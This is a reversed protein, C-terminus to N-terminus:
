QTSPFIITIEAGGDKNNQILLEGNNLVTFEKCLVLGLGTGQEQNTGPKSILFEDRKIKELDSSSFGSGSDKIIIKVQGEEKQATICIEGGEPTFKIANRILNRIIFELQSKDALLFVPMINKIFNISKQNLLPQKLEHIHDIFQPVNIIEPITVPKHMQMKAWTLLNKVFGTTKDVQKKLEAGLAKLEEEPIVGINNILVNSFSGISNLPAMFDHSVISFFKDKTRNLKDLESNKNLILKEKELLLSNSKKVKSVYDFTIILSVCLMCAFVILIIIFKREQAIQKKQVTLVNFLDKNSEELRVINQTATILGLREKNQYNKIQEKLMKYDKLIEKGKSSLENYLLDQLLRDYAVDIYSYMKHEKIYSIVDFLVQEEESDKGKSHLIDAKGLMSEITAIKQSNKGLQISLTLAKSFWFDASDTKQKQLYIRGIAKYCSSLLPLLRLSDALKIAKRGIEYAENLYGSNLLSESYNHTVVAIREGQNSTQIMNYALQHYKLEQDHKGLRRYTHGLTIYCNAIGISDGLFRFISMAKELNIMTEATAGEYSYVSALCRYAYAQGNSYYDKISLNLAETAYSLSEIPSIYSLERSLLNLCDVRERVSLSHNNLRLKLEDVTQACLQTNLFLLIWLLKFHLFLRPSILCQYSM